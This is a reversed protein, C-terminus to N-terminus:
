VSQLVTTRHARPARHPAGIFMTQRARAARLSINLSSSCQIIALAGFRPAHPMVAMGAGDKVRLCTHVRSERLATLVVAAVCEM